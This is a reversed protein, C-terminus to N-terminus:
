LLCTNKGGRMFLNDTQETCFKLIDKVWTQLPSFLHINSFIYNYGLSMEGYASTLTKKNHFGFWRIIAPKRSIQKANWRFYM